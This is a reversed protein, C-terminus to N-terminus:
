LLNFLFSFYWKVGYNLLPEMLNERTLFPEEHLNMMLPISPGFVDTDLLGIGKEPRILKLATALNVSVLCRYLIKSM